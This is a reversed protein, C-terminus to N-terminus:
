DEEVRLVSRRLKARLPLRGQHESEHDKARRLSRLQRSDARLAARTFNHEIFNHEVFNREFRGDNDIKWDRGM